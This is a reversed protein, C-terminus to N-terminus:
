EHEAGSEAALKFNINQDKASSYPERKPTMFAGHGDGCVAIFSPFTKVVRLKDTDIANM